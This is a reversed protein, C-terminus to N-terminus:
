IMIIFIIVNILGSSAISDNNSLQFSHVSHASKSMYMCAGASQGDGGAGLDRLELQRLLVRRAHDRRRSRRQHRVRLSDGPVRYWRGSQAYLLLRSIHQGNEAWREKCRMRGSLLAPFLLWGHSARWSSLTWGSSSGVLTHARPAFNVIFCYNISIM